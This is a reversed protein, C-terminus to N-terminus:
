TSGDPLTHLGAHYIFLCASAPGPQALATALLAAAALALLPRQVSIPMTHPCWHHLHTIHHSFYATHAAHCM